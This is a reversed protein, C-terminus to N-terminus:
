PTNLVVGRPYSPWRSFSKVAVPWTQFKSPQSLNAVLCHVRQAEGCFRDQKEPGTDDDAWPFLASVPAGLHRAGNYAGRTAALPALCTLPQPQTRSFMLEVIIQLWYRVLPVSASSKTLSTVSWKCATQGSEHHSVSLLWNGNPFVYIIGIGRLELNVLENDLVIFWVFM